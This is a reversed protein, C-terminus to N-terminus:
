KKDINAKKTKKKEKDMESKKMLYIENNKYKNSLHIFFIGLLLMIAGFVYFFNGDNKILTSVILFISCLICLIGDIFLKNLNPYIKYGRKTKKYKEIDEKKM